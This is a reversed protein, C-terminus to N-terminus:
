EAKSAEEEEEDSTQFKLEPRPPLTSPQYQTRSTAQQNQQSLQTDGIMNVLTKKFFRNEEALKENRLKYMGNFQALQTMKVANRTAASRCEDYEDNLIQFEAIIEEKTM